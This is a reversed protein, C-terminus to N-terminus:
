KRACNCSKFKGSRYNILIEQDPLIKTTAFFVVSTWQGCTRAIVNPNCSHNAFRAFNAKSTGDVFKNKSIQYMYFSDTKKDYILDRQIKEENTIEEGKYEIVRDGKEFIKKACLGLGHISSRHVSFYKHMDDPLIEEFVPDPYRYIHVIEKIKRNYIQQLYKRNKDVKQYGLANCLDKFFDNDLKFSEDVKSLTSDSFHKWVVEVFVTRVHLLELNLRNQLVNSRGDSIFIQHM